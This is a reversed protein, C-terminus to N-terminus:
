PTNPSPTAPPTGQDPTSPTPATSPTEAPPVTSPAPTPAAPDTTGPTTSTAPPVAPEIAGQPPSPTPPLLPANSSYTQALIKWEGDRKVWNIISKGKDVVVGNATGSRYEYTGLDAALDAGNGLVIKESDLKYSFGPIAFMARWAAVISERGAIKPANPALLVGDSAYLDAIGAADRNEILTALKENQARIAKTEAEASPQDSCATLALMAAAPLVAALGARKM